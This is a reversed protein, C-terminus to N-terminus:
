EENQKKKAGSSYKNLLCKQSKRQGTYWGFSYIGMAVGVGYMFTFLGIRLNTNM